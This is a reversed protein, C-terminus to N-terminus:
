FYPPLSQPPRTNNKIDGEIVKSSYYEDEAIKAERNKIEQNIDDLIKDNDFKLIEFKARILADKPSLKEKEILHRAYIKALNERKRQQISDNDSPFMAQCFAEIAELRRKTDWCAEDISKMWKMMENRTDEHSANNTEIVEDKYRKLFNFM